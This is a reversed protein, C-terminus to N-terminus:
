TSVILGAHWLAAVVNMQHNHSKKRDLKLVDLVGLWLERLDNVLEPKQQLIKVAEIAYAKNDKSRTYNGKRVDVILGEECLGLFACSPCSKEQVADNWAARPKLAPDSQCKRAACVAAKGYKGFDGM